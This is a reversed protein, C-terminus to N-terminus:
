VWDRPPPGLVAEAMLQLSQNLPGLSEADPHLVAVHWGALTLLHICRQLVFSYEVNETGKLVHYPSALLLAVPKGPLGAAIEATLHSPDVPWPLTEVNWESSGSVPRLLAAFTTATGGSFQSIKLNAVQSTLKRPLSRYNNFMNEILPQVEIAAFQPYRHLLLPWVQVFEWVLKMPVLEGVAALKLVSDALAHLLPAPPEIGACMMSWTLRLSRPVDNKNPGLQAPYSAYRHALHEIVSQGTGYYALCFACVSSVAMTVQPVNQLVELLLREYVLLFAQNRVQMRLVVRAAHRCHVVSTWSITKFVKSVDGAALRSFTDLLQDMLKPELLYKSSTLLDLASFFHLLEIPKLKPLNLVHKAFLHARPEFLQCLEAPPPQVSYGCLRLCVDLLESDSEEDVSQLLRICLDIFSPCTVSRLLHIVNMQRCLQRVIALDLSEPDPGARIRRLLEKMFVRARYQSDQGDWGTNAAFILMDMLQAVTKESLEGLLKEERDSRLVSSSEPRASTSAESSMARWGVSHMRLRCPYAGSPICVPKECVSFSTSASLTVLTRSLLPLCRPIRRIRPRACRRGILSLM